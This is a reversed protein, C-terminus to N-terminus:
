PDPGGCRRGDACRRNDDASSDFEKEDDKEEQSTRPVIRINCADTWAPAAHRQGEVRGIALRLAHQRRDRCDEIVVPLRGLLM